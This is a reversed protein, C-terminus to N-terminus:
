RVAVNLGVVGYMSRALPYGELYGSSKAGVAVSVGIRRSPWGTTAVSVEGRVGGGNLTHSWADFRITPELGHSAPALYTVGAGKQRAIGIPESWRVYASARTHGVRVHSRVSFEPGIPTLSYRLAPILGVRGIRLWSNARSEDGRTLWTWVGAVDTWLGFDILNLMCKARVAARLDGSDPNGARWRLENLQYVYNGIDGQPALGVNRVADPAVGTLAYVPTHTSAVLLTVADGFRIGGQRLVRTEVRDKLLWVAELGSSEMGLDFLAPGHVMPYFALDPELLFPHVSWPSGIVRLRAPIHLEGARFQHGLEHDLGVFFIAVPFDLGALEVARILKPTWGTTKAAAPLAWRVAQDAGTLSFVSASSLVDAHRADPITSISVPLPAITVPQAFGPPALLAVLLGVLVSRM